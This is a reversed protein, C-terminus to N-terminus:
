LTVTAPKKRKYVNLSKSSKQKPMLARPKIEEKATDQKKKFTSAFLQQNSSM